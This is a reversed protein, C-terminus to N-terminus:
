KVLAILSDNFETSKARAIQLVREPIGATEAVYIGFSEKAVGPQFKYNFGVTKREEDKEKENIECAM